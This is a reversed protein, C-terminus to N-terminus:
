LIEAEQKEPTLIGIEMLKNLLIKLTSLEEWGQSLEMAKTLYHYIEVEDRFNVAVKREPITFM